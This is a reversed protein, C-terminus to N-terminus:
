WLLLRIRINDSINVIKTRFDVGITAQFVDSFVDQDFRFLLGTKGVKTDGLLLIKVSSYSLASNELSSETAKPDDSM